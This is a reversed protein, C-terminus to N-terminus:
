LCSMKAVMQVQWKMKFELQPSSWGHVKDVKSSQITVIGDATITATTGAYNEWTGVFKAYAEQTKQKDETQEAQTTTAETESSTESKQEVQTKSESETTVQSTTEKQNSASTNKDTKGGCAVLTLAALLTLVSLSTCRLTKNNM